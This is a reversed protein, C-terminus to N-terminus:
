PSCWGAGESAFSMLMRLNCNRQLSWYFNEKFLESRYEVEKNHHTHPQKSMRLLCSTVDVLTRWTQNNMPNSGATSQALQGCGQIALWWWLHRSCKWCHFWCRWFWCEQNEWPRGSHESGWCIDSSDSAIQVFAIIRTTFMRHHHLRLQSLFSFLNKSRPQWIFCM